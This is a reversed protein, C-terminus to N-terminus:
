AIVTRSRRLIFLFFPAGMLATIVGIPLEAPAVVTRAVLDAIILLAAGLIVSLPIIVRYSGGRMLRITHPVIIGVFGITGAVSIVAATGITAAAILILRTRGVSVGLSSAEDDGLVMVDLVRRHAIIIGACVIVYPLVLWVGSWGATGLRGLIWSFVQRLSASQTQEVWTEVATVLSAIAVGALILAAPSRGMGVSSGLLYTAAVAATAGIFASVQVINAGLITHAPAYAIALTAGLEAGSATGLLYPDALPNRFVAQYTAGALALMAGVLGGLIVRPVRIQWVIASDTTSLPSSVHLGPVHSLLEQITTSLPLSVPGLAVGLLACGALVGLSGAWWKWGIDGSGALDPESVEAELVVPQTTAV